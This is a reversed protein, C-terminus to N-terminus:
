DSGAGPLGREEEDDYPWIPGIEVQDAQRRVRLLDLTESAIGSYPPSAAAVVALTKAADLREMATGTVLGSAGTRGNFIVLGPPDGIVDLVGAGGVVGDIVVSAGRDSGSASVAVRSRVDVELPDARTGIVGGARLRVAGGAGALNGANGNADLLDEGAVLEVEGGSLIRGLSLNGASGARVAGGATVLAVSLSTRGFVAVEGGAHAVLSGGVLELADAARGIDGAATLDFSAAGLNRTDGNGDLLSGDTSLVLAGAARVARLTLDGGHNAIRVDGSPGLASVLVLTAEGAVDLDVGGNRADALISSAAVRLPDDPTGVATGATLSVVPAEVDFAPAAGRIAGGGAFLTLQTGARAGEVTIGGSLSAVSVEGTPAEVRLALDRVNTVRVNETESRADLRSTNLELPDLDLGISERATLTIGDPADLDTGQAVNDDDIAGQPTSLTIRRAQVRKLIEASGSTVLLGLEGAVDLGDIALDSSETVFFDGAASRGALTTVDIEIPDERTGVTANADLVAREAFIDTGPHADILRQLVFPAARLTVTGPARITGAVVIDGRGDATVSVDSETATVDGLTVTDDSVVKVGSGTATLAGGTPMRIPRADTGADRDARLVLERSFVGLGTSPGLITGTSVIV